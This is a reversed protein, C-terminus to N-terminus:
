PVSTIEKTRLRSMLRKVAEAAAGLGKAKIGFAKTFEVTYDLVEGIEMDIVEVPMNVDGLTGDAADLAVKAAWRHHGDIIYGDSTVFIPKDPIKGAAMAKSMGAVKPGDLENQSAKLHAAKVTALQTKVGRAKLSERFAETADVEGKKDPTLKAAESGEVAQGSLQPMNARPIGKSEQCFLNQGAVSLKCMDINPAKDGAAKAKEVDAALKDVLTGVEDVHNLRVHKGESLLQVAKNIDGDVDIPDDVTGAGDPRGKGAKVIRDLNRNGKLAPGTGGGSEPKGGGPEPKGGGSEPQRRRGAAREERLRIKEAEERSLKPAPKEPTPKEKEWSYKGPKEGRRLPKRGGEVPKQQDLWAQHKRIDTVRVKARKAWAADSEGSRRTGIMQAFRRQQAGEIESPKPAQQGIRGIGRARPRPAGRGVGRQGPVITSGIPKGYFRAGEPTRVRAKNQLETLKDTLQSV